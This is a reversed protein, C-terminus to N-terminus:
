MGVSSVKWTGDEKVLEVVGKATDKQRGTDVQKTKGDSSIFDLKVEYYYRVKDYDKVDKYVNEGLTLDTVQTTYNGDAGMTVAFTNFRNAIINKYGEKTMLPQIDKNISQYIKTYEENPPTITGEPIGEGIMDMGPPTLGDLSKFEVIKRADVTFINRILEEAVKVPTEAKSKSTNLAVGIGGLIVVIIAGLIINRVNAKKYKSIMIIRRKIESSNMVMSTTGILRNNSGMLRNSNGALELVRVIANGYQLNKGKDLYSIVSADCSVELDQRMKHFGCLLIPNFWYIMSLLTIIWNIFIDKNKLHTLEHMIIYKFEEDCVNDAVSIPILIKPKNMGCLSPSSIKESYSLEVESRINMTKMCIYLIEKHIININKISSSVINKLKKHGTILTGILILVGFIWIFCFVKEINIEGKLPVNITNDIVSGSTPTLTSISTSGDLSSNDLQKSSNIQTTENTASQVYFNKYINSINLPTQPGIHIILKIILILWIYYHFNPSLKNKFIGKIILIMLVIVSGILSSLVIMEFISLVNM